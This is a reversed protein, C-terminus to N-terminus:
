LKGERALKEAKHLPLPKKTRLDAAVKMQKETLKFERLLRDTVDVRGARPIRKLTKEDWKSVLRV